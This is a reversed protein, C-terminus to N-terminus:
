REPPKFTNIWRGRRWIKEQALFEELGIQVTEPDEHRTFKAAPAHGIDWYTEVDSRWGTERCIKEAVSRTRVYVRSVDIPDLEEGEDSYVPVDHLEVIVVDTVTAFMLRVDEFTQVCPIQM